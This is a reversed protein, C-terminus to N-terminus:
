GLWKIALGLLCLAGGLRQLAISQSNTQLLQPKRLDAAFDMPSLYWAVGVVTLGLSLLGSGFSANEVADLMAGIAVVAVSVVFTANLVGNHKKAAHTFSRDM